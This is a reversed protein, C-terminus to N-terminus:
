RDLRLKKLDLKFKYTGKLTRVQRYVERKALLELATKITQTIGEGTIKQAKQLLDSPILTTIKKVTSMAMIKSFFAPITLPEVGTFFTL